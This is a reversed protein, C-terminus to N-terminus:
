SLIGIMALYTLQHAMQDAGFLRWFGHTAVHLGRDATLRAKAWDIHYHAAAEGVLLAAVLWATGGSGHIGLVPGAAALTAGSGAVHVLVHWLGGARGYHGKERRMRESQFVFDALWHKLQLLALLVLGGTLGM